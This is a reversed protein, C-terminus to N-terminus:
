VAFRENNWNSRRTLAEAQSSIATQGAPATQRTQYM